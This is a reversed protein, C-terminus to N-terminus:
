PAGSAKRRARSARQRCRDSCYRAAPRVGDALAEGCAACDLRGTPKNQRGERCARSCYRADRRRAWFLRGCLACRLQLEGGAPRIQAAVSWDFTCLRSPTSAMVVYLAPAACCTVSSAECALPTLRIQRPFRLILPIM